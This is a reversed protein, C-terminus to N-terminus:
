AIKKLFVRALFLCFVINILISVYDLTRPSNVQISEIQNLRFGYQHINTEELSFM